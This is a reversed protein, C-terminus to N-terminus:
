AFGTRKLLEDVQKCLNEPTTNNDIRYDVLKRTEEFGFAKADLEEQHLFEELTKPDGIRARLRMREFRLKPDAYVEILIMDKGFAAKPVRADEPRRIGNIIAKKWGAARIRRVVEDAFWTIGHKEVQERQLRILNDRNPELGRQAALERVIDGMVIVNYGYKKAIYDSVTDKGSGILGFLGIVRM